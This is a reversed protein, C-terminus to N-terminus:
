HAFFLEYGVEEMIGQKFISRIVNRPDVVYLRIRLHVTGSLQELSKASDASTICSSTLHRSTGHEVWIPLLPYFVLPLFHVKLTYPTTSITGVQTIMDGILGFRIIASICVMLNMYRDTTINETRLTFGTVVILYVASTTYIFLSRSMVKDCAEGARLIIQHARIL